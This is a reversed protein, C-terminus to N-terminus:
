FGFNGADKDFQQGMFKFIEEADKKDLSTYDPHYFKALQRYISKETLGASRGMLVMKVFEFSTMPWQRSSVIDTATQEIDRKKAEFTSNREPEVTTSTKNEVAAEIDEPTINHDAQYGDYFETVGNYLGTNGFSQNGLHGIKRFLVENRYNATEFQSALLHESDLNGFFIELEELLAEPEKLGQYQRNVEVLMEGNKKRYFGRNGQGDKFEVVYIPERQQRDIIIRCEDGSENIHKVLLNSGESPLEAGKTYMYLYHDILNDADAKELKPQYEPTYSSIVVEGTASKDSFNSSTQM